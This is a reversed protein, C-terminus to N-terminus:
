IAGAHDVLIAVYEGALVFTFGVELRLHLVQLLVDVAKVACDVLQYSFTVFRSSAIDADTLLWAANAMTLLGLM